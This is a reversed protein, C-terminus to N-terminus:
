HHTPYPHQNRTQNQKEWEVLMRELIMRVQDRADYDNATKNVVEVINAAEILSTSVIKNFEKNQTM